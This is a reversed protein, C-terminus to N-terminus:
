TLEGKKLSRIATAHRHCDYAYQTWDYRDNKPELYDAAVEIADNWAADREAEAKEARALLTRLTHKALCYAERDVDELKKYVENHQILQILADVAERSTDTETM